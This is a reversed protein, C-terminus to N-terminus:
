PEIGPLDLQLGTDIGKRSASVGKTMWTPAPDGKLYHNFFQAIRINYDCLAKRDVIAHGEGDYQLLWAKKHLRRLATFLEVGQIFSVSKDGKNNVLLVPTTVKDAGFIPSNKIYLDPREWITKGIRSQWVEYLPQCSMDMSRLSGYDGVFDSPGACSMAASFLKTHTILYNTEYGGWSAGMLGLRKSNVWPQICLYNAASVIANYASQGPYGIIYYIDPTFVLFGHSVFWPIDLTTVLRPNMFVHLRDSLREYYNFILPYKFKPSFNEPKYLVGKLTHGDLSKWTVLESTLWNYKKEPYVHSVQRFSKFDLTLFYNPSESASMRRVLWLRADRAKIPPFQDLEEGSMGSFVYPQLTLKEPDIIKGIVANFFGDEKNNQNLASLLVTDGQALSPNITRTTIRFVIKYKNGYGNTLNIPQRHGSPDAIIIDYQENILVAGDNKTWGAIGITMNTSRVEQHDVTWRCHIDRTINKVEGTSISYSFYNKMTPDYYIVYKGEPSLVFSMLVDAPLKDKILKKSGDNLSLLFVQSLAQPNWNWEWLNAKGQHIVLVNNGKLGRVGENGPYRIYEQANNLQTIKRDSLQMCAWYTQRFSLPNLPDLDTLQESQLRDDKYNWIDIGVGMAKESPLHNSKLQFFFRGGDFDFGDLDSILVGNGLERSYDQVLLESSNMGLRYYWLSTIKKNDAEDETKYVLQAGKNDFIFNSPLNGDKQIVHIEDTKLSLWELRHSRVSDNSMESKLILASVDKNLMYEAIGPYKRTNGSVLDRIFLDKHPGELYILWSRNAETAVDYTIVSPIFEISDSGLTQIGLTDGFRFIGFRNDPSFVTIGCNELAKEKKWSSEVAQIIITTKQLPLNDVYYSLYKGDNSMAPNGVEQWKGYINTDILPKQGFSCIILHLGILGLFISRM